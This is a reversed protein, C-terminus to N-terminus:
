KYVYWVYYRASYVKTTGFKPSNDGCQWIYGELKVLGIVKPQMVSTKSFNLGEFNRSLVIFEGVNLEICYQM